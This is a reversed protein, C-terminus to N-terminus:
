PLNGYFGAKTRNFEAFKTEQISEPYSAQFRIKHFHKLELRTIFAKFSRGRLSIASCSRYPYLTPIEPGQTASVTPAFWSQTAAFNTLYFCPYFLGIALSLSGSVPRGAVGAM